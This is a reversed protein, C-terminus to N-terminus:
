KNVHNIHCWVTTLFNFEGIILNISSKTPKHPLIIANYNIKSM